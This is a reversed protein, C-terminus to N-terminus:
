PATRSGNIKESPGIVFWIMSSRQILDERRECVQRARDAARAATDKTVPNPQLETRPNSSPNGKGGSAASICSPAVASRDNDSVPDVVSPAFSAETSSRSLGGLSAGSTSLASAPGSAHLGLKSVSGFFQPAHPCSQVARGLRRVVKPTPHEAPVHTM